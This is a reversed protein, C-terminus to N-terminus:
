GSPSWGYRRLDVYGRHDFEVGEAELLSRQLDAILSDGISIRGFGTAAKAMVRQWPLDEDCDHMAYGVQRAARPLGAALAVQGYTMVRGPPIRAVVRFIRQRNTLPAPM